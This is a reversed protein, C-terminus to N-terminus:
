VMLLDDSLIFLEFLSERRSTNILFGKSLDTYRSQCGFFEIKTMRVKNKTKWSASTNKGGGCRVFSNMSLRKLAKSVFWDPSISKLCSIAPKFQAVESFGSSTMAKLKRTSSTSLLPYRSSCSIWYATSSTKLTRFVIKTKRKKKKMEQLEVTGM